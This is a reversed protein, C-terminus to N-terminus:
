WPRGSVSALAVFLCFGGLAAWALAIVAIDYPHLRKM